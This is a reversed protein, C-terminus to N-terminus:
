KNETHEVPTEEANEAPIQMPTEEENDEVEEFELAHKELIEYQLVINSHVVYRVYDGNEFDPLGREKDFYVARDMWECKKRSWTEFICGVMDVNNKQMFLEEFSYFYNSEVDKMGTSLNTLMNYYRNARDFSIGMYVFAFVVYIASIVYVCTQPLWQMSDKYPLGIYYILWGICFALYIATVAIFWGLLKSRQKYAALYEADTYVNIM